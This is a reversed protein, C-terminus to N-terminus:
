VVHMDGKSLETLFFSILINYSKKYIRTNNVM